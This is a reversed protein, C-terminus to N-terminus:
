GDNEIELKFLFPLLKFSVLAPNLMAANYANYQMANYQMASLSPNIAVNPPRQGAAAASRQAAAGGAHTAAGPYGYGPLAIGHHSAAAAAAAASSAGSSRSSKGGSSTSNKSARQSSSQTPLPPSKTSHQPVPPLFDLRQTLQQLSVLSSPHAGATHQQNPYFM